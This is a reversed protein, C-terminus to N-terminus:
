FTTQIGAYAIFHPDRDRIVSSGASMLLTLHDTLKARAGLNYVIESKRFHLRQGAGHIEGLLELREKFERGVVVGYIMEDPGRKFRYGIDGNVGFKGVQTQWQLPILFEPGRDVIGRRVSSTSNNFEVQPYISLAVRHHEREDRFRWRVGINTNGLGSISRDGNGGLILWPIEVKLQTNGSLGYNIDLLPSGYVRGVSGREMTFSTNIEWQGRPVTGTDDTIMPPGGQGELGSCFALISFAVLVLFRFEKTASASRRKLAIATRIARGM